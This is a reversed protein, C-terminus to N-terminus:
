QTRVWAPAQWIRCGLDKGWMAIVYPSKHPAADFFWRTGDSPTTAATLPTFAIAIAESIGRAVAQPTRRCTAPRWELWM